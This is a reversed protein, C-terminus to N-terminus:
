AEPYCPGNGTSDDSLRHVSRTFIGTAVALTLLTTRGLQRALTRDDWGTGGAVTVPWRARDGCRPARDWTFLAMAPSLRILRM